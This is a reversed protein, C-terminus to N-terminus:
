DLGFGGGAGGGVPAFGGGMKSYFGDILPAMMAGLPTSLFEDPLQSVNEPVGKGTLFKAAEDAFNNCNNSLLNYTDTTYRDRIGDLYQEFMWKPVETTGNSVVTTPAGAPTSGPTAKQIGGGFYYEEGYAVVATHWLGDLRKGLFQESMTAMMGQSLDYVYVEVTSTTSM